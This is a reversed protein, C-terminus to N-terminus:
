QFSDPLSGDRNLGDWLIAKQSNGLNSRNKVDQYAKQIMQQKIMPDPHFIKGDVRNYRDTVFLNPFQTSMMQIVPELKDQHKELADQLMNVIQPNNTVQSVKALVAHKNSLIDNINRPIEYDALNEVLGKGMARAQIPTISQPIRGVQIPQERPINQMQENLAAGGRIVSMSTLPNEGVATAVSGIGPTLKKTVLNINPRIDRYAMFPIELKKGIALSLAAQPLSPVNLREMKAGELSNRVTILDSIHANKQVFDSVEPDKIAADNVANDIHSWMHNYIEGADPYKTLFREKEAESMNFVRSQSRQKLEILDSFKTSDEADPKIMAEIQNWLKNADRNDFPITSNPNDKDGVISNYISEILDYKDIPPAKKNISDLIKNKEDTLRSILGEDGPLVVNGKNGQPLTVETLKGGLKEKLKEPFMLYKGLGHENLVDGARKLVGSNALRNMDNPPLSSVSALAKERLSSGIDKLSSPLKVGESIGHSVLIDSPLAAAQAPTVQSLVNSLKPLQEIKLNPAIPQDMGPFEKLLAESSGYKSAAELPHTIPNVFEPLPQGMSAKYSAVAAQVPVSMATQFPTSAVDLFKAAAGAVPYVNPELYKSEFTEPKESTESLFKDPNFQDSQAVLAPATEKLFKDPDFVM